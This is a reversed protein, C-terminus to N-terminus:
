VCRCLPFSQIRESSEGNTAVTDADAEAKDEKTAFYADMEADLTSKKEVAAEEKERTVKEVGKM